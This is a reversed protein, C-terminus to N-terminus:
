KLKVIRHSLRLVTVIRKPLTWLGLKSDWEAGAARVVSRLGFEEPNVRINVLQPQRTQMVSKDVLLEVTTFRFKAQADTRHRVCILTSGFQQALTIAGRNSPDLKKIVRMKTILAGSDQQKPTATM